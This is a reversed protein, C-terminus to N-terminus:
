AIRTRFSELLAHVATRLRAGQEPDAADAKLLAGHLRNFDEQVAEFLTKFVATEPAALALQKRLAEAKTVAAKHEEEAARLQQELKKKEEAFAAGAHAAAESRLKDMLAPPVEPEEQLKKLREQTARLKEKAAATTRDAQALKQGLAELEKQAKARAEQAARAAGQGHLDGLGGGRLLPLGNDGRPLGAGTRGCGYVWLPGPCLGALLRQRAGKHHVVDGPLSHLHLAGVTGANGDASGM